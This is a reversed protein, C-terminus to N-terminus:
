HDSREPDHEGPMLPLGLMREFRGTIERVTASVEAHDRGLLMVRGLSAGAAVESGPGLGFQAFTDYRVLADGYEGLWAVDLRDPLVGARRALLRRSMAVGTMDPVTVPAGSLLELYATYISRGTAHRYLEPMVGGMIRANAEVLVPGRETRIMELHFIGRDLGVARCVERAYAVCADRERAALPEPIHAGLEIVQDDAARTRGSVSFPFFEEGRVGIEVSVLPGVLLEEVLVGRAYQERWLEPVSDIRHLVQEAAARAEEETHAVFSLASDAGSPPKIVVPYGIERAAALAGATSDATGFRASPLGAAALARRCLDKRRATLAPGPAPGPVGTKECALAVAEVTLDFHTSVFDLPHEAHCEAIVEAVASADTTVVGDRFWDALGILEREREGLPYYPTHSQVYGVRHGAEKACRLAELSAANSDVFLIHM